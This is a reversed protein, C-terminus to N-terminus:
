AHRLERVLRKLEVIEAELIDIRTDREAVYRVTFKVVARMFPDLDPEDDSAAPVPESVHRPADGTYDRYIMGASPAAHAPAGGQPEPVAMSQEHEAMLYDQMKAPNSERAAQRRELDARHEDAQRQLEAIRADRELPDM